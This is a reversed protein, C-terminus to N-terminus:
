RMSQESKCSRLSRLERRAGRGIELVKGQALPILHHRINQVPKPNGLLGVLHPYVRNRYFSM